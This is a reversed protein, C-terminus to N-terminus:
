VSERLSKRGTLTDRQGQNNVSCLSRDNADDGRRLYNCIKYRGIPSNNRLMGDQIASSLCICTQQWDQGGITVM